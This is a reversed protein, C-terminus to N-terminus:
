LRDERTGPAVGLYDLFADVMACLGELEMTVETVCVTELEILFFCQATSSHPSPYFPFSGVLVTAILTAWNISSLTPGDRSTRSRRM